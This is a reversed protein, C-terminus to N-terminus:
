AGRLLLPDGLAAVHEGAAGQVHLSVLECQAPSATSPTLIHTSISADIRGRRVNPEERVIIALSPHQAAIAVWARQAMREDAASTAVAVRTMVVNRPHPHEEDGAEAQAFKRRIGRLATLVDGVTVADGRWAVEPEPPPVVAPAM